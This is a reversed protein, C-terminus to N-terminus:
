RKYPNPKDGYVDDVTKQNGSKIKEVTKRVEEQIDMLTQDQSKEVQSSIATIKHFLVGNDCQECKIKESKSEIFEPISWFKITAESCKDCVFNYKPM